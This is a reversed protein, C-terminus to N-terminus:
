YTPGVQWNKRRKERNKEKKRGDYSWIWCTNEWVMIEGRTWRRQAVSYRRGIRRRRVGVRPARSLSVVDDRASARPPQPSSPTTIVHFPFAVEDGTVFRRIRMFGQELEKTGGIGDSLTYLKENIDVVVGWPSHALSSVLRDAETAIWLHLSLRNGCCFSACVHLLTNPPTNPKHLWETRWTTIWWSNM